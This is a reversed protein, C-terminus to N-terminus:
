EEHYRKKSKTTSAENEDVVNIPKADIIHIENDTDRVLETRRQKWEMWLQQVNFISTNEVTGVAVCRLIGLPGRLPIIISVMGAGEKRVLCHQVNPPDFAGGLAEEIKRKNMSIFAMSSQLM